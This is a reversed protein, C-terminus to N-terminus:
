HWNARDALWQKGAIGTEQAASYRRASPKGTIIAGARETAARLPDDALHAYRMTTIPQTHGLLSGITHLSVGAGALVSAYTHRLDHLRVDSLKAAKRITAWPRKLDVRHGSGDGPFLYESTRDMGALLQRAPASLPIRHETKQKTTHGPKVWIGDAIDSWKAALTEGRRAGTLLLFRIANAASQDEYASLAKTLREIEVATLYRKRKAEQNREIGRCPNDLRWGWRISLNFAKSLLAIVRNARYATGRKTIKRHLSDCDAFTIEAVKHHGFAPLVFTRFVREADQQTSPRKKTAHEELYRTALDAMTPEGRAAQLSGVPDAGNVRIEGKLRKAENRAAVTRWDPFSGITYRRERGSRNRYQLVFARAGAATIRIGFGSIEGDFYVKNGTAPAALRKISADTLKETM